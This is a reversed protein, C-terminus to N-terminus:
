FILIFGASLELNFVPNQEHHCSIIELVKVRHWNSSNTTM